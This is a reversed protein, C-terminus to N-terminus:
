RASGVSIIAHLCLKEVFGDAEGVEILFLHFQCPFNSHSPRVKSRKMGSDQGNGGPRDKRKKSDPM